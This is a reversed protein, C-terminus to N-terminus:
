VRQGEIVSVPSKTAVIRTLKFGASALLKDFEEATREAGGPILMMLLDSWKALSPENRGSVVQDVMVVKASPKMVRHCNQLIRQCKADDWDHIIHKMLYTDAGGCVAEFFNGSATTCRDAVGASRLVDPAGAVVNAADFVIGRLNTHKTLIRALLGGHGGGIDAITPGCSSFDYAELVAPEVMATLELMSKNFIASREPNKAFWDFVPMGFVHDFSPGGTKLSQLIEGWPGFHTLGLESMTTYRLSQPADTRLTDSLPTNEFSGDARESFIGVSALARLLRYLPRVQTGTAKAIEAVPKPMTLLDALGLTAAAYLGRSVWFGAMMTMMQQVPPVNESSPTQANSM